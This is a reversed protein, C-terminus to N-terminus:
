IAIEDAPNKDKSTINIWETFTVNKQRLAINVYESLKDKRKYIWKILGRRVEGGSTLSFEGFLEYIGQPNIVGWSSFYHQTDIWYARSLAQRTKRFIDVSLGKKWDVLCLVKTFPEGTCNLSKEWNIPQASRLTVM